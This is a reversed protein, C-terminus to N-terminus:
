SHDSEALRERAEFGAASSTVHTARPTARPGARTRAVHQAAAEVYVEHTLRAIEDWSPVAGALAAVNRACRAALARDEILRIMAAALAADDKPAVLFGHTGEIVTEAFGGLRSAVIPRGFGIALSLVGSAEIERYPFAAVTGPAFVAPIEEEAVFRPELSLFPDIGLQRALSQLPALDMHPKGIVRMRAQARQADSLRAFARILVDAGKYPQIKGFLLFTIIGEMPDAASPPADASPPAGATSLLGHPLVRIRDAAIGQEQLRRRGQDTHVILRDFMALGRHLDRVQLQAAANGNFPNSDHVTL